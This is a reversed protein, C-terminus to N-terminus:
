EHDIRKSRGKGKQGPQATLEKPGIERVLRFGTDDGQYGPPNSNRAASRVSRPISFWSGGRRVHGEEGLVQWARGDSPAGKYGPQWIDQCWEWVNGLMDHLGFPNAPFSGAPATFPFDDRCPHVKALDPNVMSATEDAVNAYLCADARSDGWYRTTRTGARAAYEWEAETPLRYTQGTEESLWAAYGQADRWSVNMVPMRERGGGQDPPQSHGTARCFRDYEEFTVEFRGMAFPRGITVAHVPKEYPYAEAGEDGMRFSGAPLVVMEPGFGGSKLQDRFVQGARAEAAAEGVFVFVLLLFVAAINFLFLRTM